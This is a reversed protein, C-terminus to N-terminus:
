KSEELMVNEKSATLEKEFGYDADSDIEIACLDNTKIFKIWRSGYEDPWHIGSKDEQLLMAFAAVVGTAVLYSTANSGIPVSDWGNEASITCNRVGSEFEVRLGITDGGTPTRDKLKRCLPLELGATINKIIANMAKVSYGYIYKAKCGYTWAWKIVEEHQCIAGIGGQMQVTNNIPAGGLFTIKKGDAEWTSEDSFESAFEQPSWTAFGEDDWKFPITSDLEWETVEKPKGYKEVMMGLLANINGPNMGAGVIHPVEWEHRAMLLDPDLLDILSMAGRDLECATCNIVSIGLSDAQTMVDVKTLETTLDILIDGKGMGFSKLFVVIEELKPEARIVPPKAEEDPDILILEIDSFLERMLPVLSTGCLGNAGLIMTKM